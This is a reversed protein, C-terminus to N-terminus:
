FSGVGRRSAVWRTGSSAVAVATVDAGLTPTRRLSGFAGVRLGDMTSVALDGGPLLTIGAANVYGASADTGTSILEGGQRRFRVLGANYTGVFLDKGRVALATVWDDPLAGDVMSIRRLGSAGSARFTEPRGFWLGSTTGVFLAGDDGEALSWVARFPAGSKRTLTGEVAGEPTAFVLTGDGGAVVHGSRLVVLAHKGDGDGVRACRAGQDCRSLGRATAVWLVRRTEDWALANINPNLSADGAAEVRGLDSRYRFLGRDFTGVFLGASATTALAAVDGSPLVPGRLLARSPADTGESLYLGHDTALCIRGDREGRARVRSGAVRESSPATPIPADVRADVGSVRRSAISVHAHGKPTRVWVDDGHVRVQDVQTDPLGDSATLVPQGAIWLGGGTGAVFRGDETFACSRVDDLALLAPAPGTAHPLSEEAGLTSAALTAATIVMAARLM